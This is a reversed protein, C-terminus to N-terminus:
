KDGKEEKTDEGEDEESITGIHHYYKTNSREPAQERRSKRKLFLEQSKHTQGEVSSTSSTPLVSESSSRNQQIAIEQNCEYQTSPTFKKNFQSLQIKDLIRPIDQGSENKVFENEINLLRTRM